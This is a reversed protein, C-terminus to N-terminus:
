HRGWTPRLDPNYDTSRGTKRVLDAIDELMGPAWEPDRLIQAIVNLAEQDTMAM